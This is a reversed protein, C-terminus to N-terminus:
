RGPARPYLDQHTAAGALPTVSSRHEKRVRLRWRGDFRHWNHEHGSPSTLIARVLNSNATTPGGSVRAPSFVVESGEIEGILVVPGALGALWRGDWAGRDGASRWVETCRDRRSQQPFVMDRRPTLEM